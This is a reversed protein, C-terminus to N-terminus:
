RAITPPTRPDKRLMDRLPLWEARVKELLDFVTDATQTDATQLHALTTAYDCAFGPYRSSEPGSRHM